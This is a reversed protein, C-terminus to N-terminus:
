SQLTVEKGIKGSVTGNTIFGILESLELPTLKIEDISLKENKLYGAIDGMIWNAALKADAGHGLTSDFFRAVKSSCVFSNHIILSYLLPFQLPYNWKYYVCLM